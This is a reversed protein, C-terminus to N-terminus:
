AVPVGSDSEARYALQDQTVLRWGTIMLEADGLDADGEIRGVEQRRAQDIM